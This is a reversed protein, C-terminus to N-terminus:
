VANSFPTPGFLVTETSYCDRPRLVGLKSQSDQHYGQSPSSSRCELVCWASAHCADVSVLVRWSTRQEVAIRRPTYLRMSPPSGNCEYVWTVGRLPTALTAKYATSISRTLTLEGALLAAILVICIEVGGEIYAGFMKRAM